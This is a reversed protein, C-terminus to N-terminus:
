QEQFAGNPLNLLTHTYTCVSHSVISSRKECKASIDKREFTSSKKTESFFHLCATCVVYDRECPKLYKVDSLCQPHAQTRQTKSLKLENYFM